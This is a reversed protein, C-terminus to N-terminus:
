NAATEDVWKAVGGDMVIRGMDRYRIFSAGWPECFRPSTLCVMIMLKPMLLCGYRLTFKDGAYKGQRTKKLGALWSKFEVDNSPLSEIADSAIMKYPEIAAKLEELSKAAGIAEAYPRVPETIYTIDM